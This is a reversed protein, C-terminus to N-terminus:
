KRVTVGLKFTTGTSNTMQKECKTEFTITYKKDLVLVAPNVLTLTMVGTEQNYAIRYAKKVADPTDKAFVVDVIKANKVSTQTITVDITKERNQGAYLYASSKNTKIKPLTQKPKISLTKSATYTDESVELAYALKIKYTTGSKLIADDKAKVIFKNGVLEGTFHESIRNEPEYGEGDYYFSGNSKYEWIKVDKIASNVNSVKMTYVIQSTPNVTNLSGNTTISVSPIKKNGVVKIKFRGLDVTKEGITVTLGNVYYEFTFKNLTGSLLKATVSGNDADFTLDIKDKMYQANANSSKVPTLSMGDTNLTYETNAPLNTISFTTKVEEKEPYATNMTFTTKKLKMKPIDDKVVVNFSIANLYFAAFSDKYEITPMVTFKYTGEKVGEEPLSVTIGDESCTINEMLKAADAKYKKLGAFKLTTEDFGTLVADQGTLTAGIFASQEPCLMNLTATTSALKVSPHKTTVNLNFTYEISKTWTSKRVIIVVKGKRPTGKVKLLITDDEIESDLVARDFLNDTSEADNFSLIDDATLDLVQKKTKKDKLTLRYEQNTRYKSATASTKSLVYAPATTHTAVKIEKVVPESYGEYYIYLYGSVVRKGDVKVMATNTRTIVASGDAAPASINFNAAFTDEAESGAKKHNAASVLEYKNVTEKKLSQTVKVSGQEQATASTNYFLNIKGTTKITPNLAKNIVTLEPVPIIFEDGTKDFEGKIYLQGSDKYTKSEGAKLGLEQNAIIRYKGDEETVQFGKVEPYTVNGKSVKKRCIRLDSDTNIAYGYVPVIDIATGETSLSNVSIKKNALRPTADIVRVIFSEECVTEQEDKNKITITIMTEGEIGKKVVVSNTNDKCAVKSLAAITKDVSRWTSNVILNTDDDANEKAKISVAFRRDGDALTSKMYEVVKCVKGDIVEEKVTAYAPTGLDLEIAGIVSNEKVEVYFSTKQTPDSKLSATIRAKGKEKACIKGVGSITVIDENSSTYDLLWAGVQEGGTKVVLSTELGTKDMSLTKSESDYDGIYGNVPVFEFALKGSVAEKLAIYNARLTVEGEPMTFQFTQTGDASKVLETTVIASSCTAQLGDKDLCYGEKPTIKVQVTEGPIVPNKNITMTAYESAYYLINYKQYLTVFTYGKTAAYEQVKGDYGSMTVKSNDSKTPFAGQAISFEEGTPNPNWINIEKLAVCGEFAGAQIKSVSAPIIIRELATCGNFADEGITEITSKGDEDLNISKLAKCDKFLATTVETIGSPLVVTTLKSCNEFVRADLVFGEKSMGSLDLSVFGCGKFAEKEIKTLKSSWIMGTNLSSCYQFARAGITELNAMKVTTLDSCNSFANSGVQTVAPASIATLPTDSFAEKEITTVEGLFTIEELYSNKFTGEKIVTVGAPIEIEVIGSGEFAGAEIETLLSGEEFKVYKISTKENFIGVPIKGAAAPVVVTSGYIETGDIIKLEGDVVEFFDESGKVIDMGGIVDPIEPSAEPSPSIDPTAEPTVSPEAAAVDEPTASPLVTAHAEPTTTPVETVEPAESPAESEEPITMDEPTKTPEEEPAGTTEPMQADEATEEPEATMDPTTDEQVEQTVEPTSEEDSTVEDEPEVAIETQVSAPLESAMVGMSFAESSFIMAACLVAALVRKAKM